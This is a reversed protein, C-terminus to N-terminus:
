AALQILPLNLNRAKGRLMAQDAEEKSMPSLAVSDPDTMYQEPQIAIGQRDLPVWHLEDGRSNPYRTYPMFGDKFPFVACFGDKEFLQQVWAQIDEYAAKESKPSSFRLIDGM